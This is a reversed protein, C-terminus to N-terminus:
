TVQCHKYVKHLELPMAPGLEKLETVPGSECAQKSGLPKLKGDNCVESEEGLSLTSGSMM